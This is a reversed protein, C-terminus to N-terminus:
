ADRAVGNEIVNTCRFTRFRDSQAALIQGAHRRTADDPLGLMAAGRAQPIWANSVGLQAAALAAPGPLAPGLITISRQLSKM